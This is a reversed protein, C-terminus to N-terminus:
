RARGPATSEEGSNDDPQDCGVAAERRRSRGSPPERPGRALPGPTLREASEVGPDWEATHSFDALYDFADAIPVPLDIADVYRAMATRGSETTQSEPVGPFCSQM